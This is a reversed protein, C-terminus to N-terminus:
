TADGQVRGSPEILQNLRKMEKLMLYAALTAAAGDAVPGAYVVGDIGFFIPFILFLPALFVIQRTLAVVMGIKARGTATFYNSALPQLGNIFTMFMFIRLYRTAFDFYEQSGSGFIGIIQHPFLQFVCFFLVAISMLCVFATKLTAKVRVFNKAGYNFGYVPQCGQGIGVMFMVLFINVKSIAGVAGLTVTSGYRSLDGYHRLTNNLIITVCASALQNFFGAVGLACISNVYQSKLLLSGKTLNVTKMGRIIYSFALTSSLLQGLSTAAAIGKIGWGFTFMFVPDFILNFVAGSMMCVMAWNPNGDARILQCVGVTMIQFPFGLAVIFTYDYALAMIEDTAGFARLLAPLFMLSLVTLSVGCIAMMVLGNGAIKEAREHNGTGLCLSFNSASGVGILLSAATTLTVLPMAINTAAIGGYGIGHGIFIQDVMNYIANVLNSAIAPLSYRLILKGVNEYGLPNAKVATVDKVAEV